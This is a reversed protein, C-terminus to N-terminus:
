ITSHHFTGLVKYVTASGLIILNYERLLYSAIGAGLLSFIVVIIICTILCNNKPGKRRRDNTSPKRSIDDNEFSNQRGYTNDNWNQNTMTGNDDATQSIAMPHKEKYISGNNMLQNALVADGNMPSRHLINYNQNIENPYYNRNKEVPWVEINYKKPQARPAQVNRIVDVHRMSSAQSNSRRGSKRYKREPRGSTYDDDESDSEDSAMVDSLIDPNYRPIM